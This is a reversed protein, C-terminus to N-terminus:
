SGDFLEDNRGCEFSDGWFETYAIFKVAQM